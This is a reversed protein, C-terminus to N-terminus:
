CSAWPRRTSSATVWGTPSSTSLTTASDGPKTNLSYGFNNLPDAFFNFIALARDYPTTASATLEAVKSTVYAPTSNPLQLDRQVDNTPTPDAAQLEGANPRPQTVQETYTQNRDVQGVVLQTAQDWRWSGNTDTLNQPVYFLPPGGRSSFISRPQSPTRPPATRASPRSAPSAGRAIPGPTQTTGPTRSGPRAPIPRSCRKASTTRSTAKPPRSASM